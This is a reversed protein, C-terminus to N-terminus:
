SLVQEGVPRQGNDLWDGRDHFRFDSFRQALRSPAKLEKPIRGRRLRSAVDPLPLLSHKPFLGASREHPHRGGLQLCHHDAGDAAMQLAMASVRFRHRLGVAVEDLPMQQPRRQAGGLDRKVQAPHSQCRSQQLRGRWRAPPTLASM